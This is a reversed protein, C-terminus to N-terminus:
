VVSVINPDDIIRKVVHELLVELTDIVKHKRHGRLLASVETCAAVFTQAGRTKQKDMIDILQDRDYILFGKANYRPVIEAIIGLDKEDPNQYSRGSFSFLGSGVTAPTGLICLSDPCKGLEEKIVDRLSIINEYASAEMFEKRFLHITNCVMVIFDPEHEVLEKLGEVYPQLMDATVDLTVLEPANINNLIIHPYDATTRIRGIKTLRRILEAYFYASAEPGIGGLIGITMSEHEHPFNDCLLKGLQTSTMSM